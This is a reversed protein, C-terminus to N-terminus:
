GITQCFKYIPMLEEFRQFVDEVDLNNANLDSWLALSKRKLLEGHAHDKDFPAPVRKLEPEDLRYGINTLSEIDTALKSGHRDVAKRYADLRDKQLGMVGCGATVYEPSVGFFFGPGSGDTWLLHLHTNYPTKDKSFRIDRNIRFQKPTAEKGTLKLLRAAMEQGLATGPNKIAAEYDKKHEQFWDRNNNAKLEKLFARATAITDSLKDLKDM